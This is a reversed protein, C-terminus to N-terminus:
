SSQQFVSTDILNYIQSALSEEGVGGDGLDFYPFTKELRLALSEVSSGLVLSAGEELGMQPRPHSDFLMTSNNPCIICCVTEPPKTLIVAFPIAHDVGPLAAADHFLRQFHGGRSSLTANPISGKLAIKMEAPLPTLDDVSLHEVGGASAALASRSNYENYLTIGRIMGDTLFSKDRVDTTSASHSSSAGGSEERVTSLGWLLLSAMSCAIATCASSAVGFSYQSVPLQIIQEDNPFSTAATASAFVSVTTPPSPYSSASTSLSPGILIIEIASAVDGNTQTLAARSATADFGMALLDDM